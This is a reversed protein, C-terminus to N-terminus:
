ESEPLAVGLARAKDEITSQPRTYAHEIETWEHALPPARVATGSIDGHRILTASGTQAVAIILQRLGSDYRWATRYGPDAYIQLCPIDTGNVGIIDAAEDIVYHAKDPRKLDFKDTIEPYALWVCAYSRCADPRDAYIGCGAGKRAHKCWKNAPKEVADVRPLKCCLNCEGCERTYVRAAREEGTLYAPM